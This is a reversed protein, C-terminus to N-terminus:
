NTFGYVAENIGRGCYFIFVFLLYHGESIIARNRHNPVTLHSPISFIVTILPLQQGTEKGHSVASSSKYLRSWKPSLDSLDPM